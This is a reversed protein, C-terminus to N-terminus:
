FTDIIVQPVLTWRETVGMDNIDSTVLCWPDHYKITFITYIERVYKHEQKGTRKVDGANNSEYKDRQIYVFLM